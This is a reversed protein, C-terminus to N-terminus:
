KRKKKPSTVERIHAKSPAARGLVQAKGPIGRFYMLEKETIIEPDDDLGLLIRNIQTDNLYRNRAKVAQSITEWRESEEASLKLQFNKIPGLPKPRPMRTRAARRITYM